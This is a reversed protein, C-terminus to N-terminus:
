LPFRGTAVRDTMRLEDQQLMASGVLNGITLQQSLLTEIQDLHAPIGQLQPLDAHLERVPTGIAVPETFTSELVALKETGARSISHLTTNTNHLRLGLQEIQPRSFAAPRAGTLQAILNQLAKLEQRCSDLCGHVAATSAQHAQLAKDLCDTQHRAYVIHHSSRSAQLGPSVLGTALGAVYLPDAM